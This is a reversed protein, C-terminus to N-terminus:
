LSNTTTASDLSLRILVPEANDDQVAVAYDQNPAIVANRISATISVPTGLVSAGIVGLIPQIVSGAPNQIFGLVPGAISPAPDQAFACSEVCIIMLITWVFNSFARM